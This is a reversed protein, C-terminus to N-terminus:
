IRKFEKDLTSKTLEFMVPRGHPCHTIEGSLVRAALVELEGIDSLSGAKISSGCAITRYINDLRESSVYSGSKLQECIRSLVTEINNIDIESPVLRVAVSDEGFNDVSFGLDDLLESNELLVSVDEFGLRCIVPVILAQSMPDYSGSKLANFRIREHAAHKDIFWLSDSEEVIIYTNLAEGVIKSSFQSYSMESEDFAKINHAESHSANNVSKKNPFNLSMQQKDYVKIDEDVSSFLPKFTDENSVYKNVHTEPAKKIDSLNKSSFRNRHSPNNPKGYSSKFTDASLTKFGGSSSSFPSVPTRQPSDTKATESFGSVNQSPMHTTDSPSVASLTAYYVASFVQKESVFKVEAKTPHINVDIDGFGTSIYLVCSPYRGTTILNSYAQEIAAQLTKSRIPRGNVIFFQFSRNGRSANPKSVYGSVKVSDDETVISTSIGSEVSVLGSSFERGLLSYICSDARSDGPTHYESKGDKIFRVSVEPHSLASKLVVSAVAAGEARNSKMFKLRAPTNFFLDQVIITTGEPSGVPAKQKVVGAELTIRVGVDAGRERSTLGIRSVAAIAALAEGRFGLTGIAELCQASRLKSTAHRKFATEVDDPAIGSGDDTVRIYTMGGDKIEVTIIGAGADIANEVLEKVVSAPREVVEGAAILDAIHPELERIKSM